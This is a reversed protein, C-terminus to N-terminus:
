GPEKGTAAEGTMAHVYAWDALCKVTCFTLPEGPNGFIAAFVSPPDDYAAPHQAVYFWGPARSPGFMRCNDCQVGASV